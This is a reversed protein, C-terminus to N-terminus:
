FEPMGSEAIRAGIKDLQHKASGMEHELQTAWIFYRHLPYDVDIGIGGHLHQCAFAAFQAGESAWYKAVSVADTASRDVSLLWVAEWVCLRLCDVM